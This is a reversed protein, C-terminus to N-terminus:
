PIASPAAMRGWALGEPLGFEEALDRYSAPLLDLADVPDGELLDWRELYPQPAWSRRLTRRKTERGGYGRYQAYHLHLAAAVANRPMVFFDPRQCQTPPANLGVLVYWEHRGPPCVRLQDDASFTFAKGPSATKTQIAVITSTENRMALVDIAPANKITMTALWGRLSLEGAVLYEGATGTLGTGGAMATMITALM